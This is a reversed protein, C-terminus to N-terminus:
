EEANEPISMQNRIKRDQMNRLGVANEAGGDIARLCIASALGVENNRNVRFNINVVEDSESMCHLDFLVCTFEWLNYLREM